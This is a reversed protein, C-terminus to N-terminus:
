CTLAALLMCLALQQKCATCASWAWRRQVATSVRRRQSARHWPLRPLLGTCCRRFVASSPHPAAAAAVAVRAAQAPQQQAELDFSLQQGLERELQQQQQPATQQTPPSGKALQASFSLSVRGVLDAAEEVAQQRAETGAAAAVAAADQVPAGQDVLQSAMEAEPQEGDEEDSSFDSSPQLAASEPETEAEGARAAQVAGAAGGAAAEGAVAADAATDRRSMGCGTSALLSLGASRWKSGRGGEPCAGDPSNSAGIDGAASGNADQSSPKHFPSMRQLALKISELKSPGGHVAPASACPFHM